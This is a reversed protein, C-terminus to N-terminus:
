GNNVELNRFNKSYRAPDHAVETPSGEPYLVSYAQWGRALEDGDRKSQDPSCASPRIASGTIWYSPLHTWTYRQSFAM